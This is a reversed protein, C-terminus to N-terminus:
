VISDQLKKLQEMRWTIYHYRGAGGGGKRHFWLSRILIMQYQKISIGLAFKLLSLISKQLMSSTPDKLFHDKVTQHCLDVRLQGNYSDGSTLHSFQWEPSSKSFENIWHKHAALYEESPNHYQGVDKIQILPGFLRRLDGELDIPKYPQLFDDLQLTEYSNRDADHLQNLGTSENIPKRQSLNYDHTAILLAFEETTLPTFACLIWSFLMHAVNGIYQFYLDSKLPTRCEM